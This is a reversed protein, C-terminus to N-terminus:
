SLIVEHMCVFAVKHYMKALLWDLESDNPTFISDFNNPDLQIVIPVLDDSSNVHFICISNPCYLKVGASTKNRNVGKLAKSFDSIYIKGAQINLFFTQSNETIMSVYVHSANIEQEITKGGLLDGIKADNILCSSPM